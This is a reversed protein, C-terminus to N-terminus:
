IFPYHADHLTGTHLCRQGARLESYASTLKAYSVHCGGAEKVNMLGYEDSGDVVVSCRIIDLIISAYGHRFNM